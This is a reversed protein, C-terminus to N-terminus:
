YLRAVLWETEPDSEAVNWLISRSVVSAQVKAIEEELSSIM